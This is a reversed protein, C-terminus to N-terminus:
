LTVKQDVSGVEGNKYNIKIVFQVEKVGTHYRCVNKSCTGLLIERELSTEGPKLEIKSPGVGQLIELKEKSKEDIVESEYNGEYEISMVGELKTLEMIIAKKDSRPTLTLGIDSPALQKIKVEEEALEDNVTKPSSGRIFVFAVGGVVLLVIVVLVIVLNRNNM